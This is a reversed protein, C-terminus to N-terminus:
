FRDFLLVKYILFLAHPSVNKFRLFYCITDICDEDPAFGHDKQKFKNDEKLKQLEYSKALRFGLDFAAYENAYTFWRERHKLVIESQPGVLRSAQEEIRQELLQHRRSESLGDLEVLFMENDGYQGGGYLASELQGNGRRRGTSTINMIPSFRRLWYCLHGAAKLHDPRAGAPVSFTENRQLDQQWAGFADRIRQQAIDVALGIEATAERVWGSYLEHLSEWDTLDFYQIQRDGSM